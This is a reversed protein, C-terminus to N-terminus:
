SREAASLLSDGREVFVLRPTGGIGHVHFATAPAEASSCWAVSLRCVVVEPVANDDCLCRSQGMVLRLGGARGFLGLPTPPPARLESAPVSVFLLPCSSTISAFLHADVQLLCFLFLVVIHVCVFSYSDAFCGRFLPAEIGAEKKM